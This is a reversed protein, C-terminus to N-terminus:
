NAGSDEKWKSEVVGQPTGGLQPRLPIRGQLSQQLPTKAPPRKAMHNQNLSSRNLHEKQTIKWTFSLITCRRFSVHCHFVVMYLLLSPQKQKEITMKTKPQAAYRMVGKGLVFRRLLSEPRHTAVQRLGVGWTVGYWRARRKSSTSLHPIKSTSHQLFPQHIIVRGEQTHVVSKRLCQRKQFVGM